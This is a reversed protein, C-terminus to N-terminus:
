ARPRAAAPCASRAISSYRKTMPLPSSCAVSSARCAITSRNWVISSGSTTEVYRRRRAEARNQDSAAEGNLTKRDAAGPQHPRIEGEPRLGRERQRRYRDAGSGGVVENGGVGRGPAPAPVPHHRSERLAMAKSGAGPFQRQVPRVHDGGAPLADTDGRGGPTGEAPVLVGGGGSARLVGRGLPDRHCRHPIALPERRRRLLQAPRSTAPGGS